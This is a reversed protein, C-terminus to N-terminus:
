LSERESVPRRLSEGRILLRLFEIGMLAFGVAVPALLVARPIDLSRVDIEGRAHGEIALWLAMGGIGLSLAACLALISRDLAVRVRAPLRDHLIEVVVHGRSRVLSPGAAMTIYLLAYETLALTSEPPQWGINRAIVDWCILLTVGGVAAGALAVLGDILADYLRILATM